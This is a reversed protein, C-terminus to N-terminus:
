KLQRTLTQVDGLVWVDVIKDAHFTFVAAGSYTVKKGTPPFGLVTGQHTGVYTLRAFAKDGESIVDKIVNTFDPFGQRIRDMYAAVGAHGHVTEGLSGRFTIEDACIKPITTKDWRNWMQEYWTDVLRRNRSMTVASPQAGHPMEHRWETTEIKPITHADLEDKVEKELRGM